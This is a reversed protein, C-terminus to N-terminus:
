TGDEDEQVTSTAKEVNVLDVEVDNGHRSSALKHFQLNDTPLRFNWELNYKMM